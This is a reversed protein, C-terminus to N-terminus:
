VHARGIEEVRERAFLADLRASLLGRLSDPLETVPADGGENVLAALEELYLPNGASRELMQQRQVDSVERRLVAELVEAAAREPLPDVNVLVINHRGRRPMWRGEIAARATAIVVLSDAGSTFLLRDLAEFVLDDAWHLDSLVVVVLRGNALGRLYVHLSRMAEDRARSPDISELASEHGILHLLGDAVRTVEPHDNPRDLAVGVAERCRRPADNNPCDTLGLGDRLADAFPFWPNPEGYPVCRGELVLAEITKEAELAAEEALRTKGVGAEGLLLVLHGRGRAGLVFV